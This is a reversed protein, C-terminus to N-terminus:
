KKWLPEMINRGGKSLYIFSLRSFSGDYTTINRFAYKTIQFWSDVFNSNERAVSLSDKSKQLACRLLYTNEISRLRIFGNSARPEM